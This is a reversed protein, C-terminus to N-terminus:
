LEDNTADWLTIKVMAEKDATRITFPNNGYTEHAVFSGKEIWMYEPATEGLLLLM